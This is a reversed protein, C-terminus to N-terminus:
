VTEAVTLWLSVPIAAEYFLFFLGHLHTIFQSRVAVSSYKTVLAQVAGLLLTELSLLTNAHLHLNNLNRLHFLDEIM